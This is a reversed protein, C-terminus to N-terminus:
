LSFSTAYSETSNIYLLTNFAETEDWIYGLNSGTVSTNQLFYLWKKWFFLRIYLYWSISFDETTQELM